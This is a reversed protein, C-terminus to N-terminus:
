QSYYGPDRMLLTKDGVKVEVPKYVADKKHELVLQGNDNVIAQVGANSLRNVFFGMLSDNSAWDGASSMMARLTPSKALSQLANSGVLANMGAGGALGAILGKGAGKLAKAPDGESIGQQAGYIAGIGGAAATSSTGPHGSVFSALKSTFSPNNISEVIDYLKNGKTLGAADIAKEFAEANITGTAPDIHRELLLQIGAKQEASAAPKALKTLQKVSQQGAAGLMGVAGGFIGGVMSGKQNFLDNDGLGVQNTLGGQIAGQAALNFIPAAGKAVSATAPLLNGTMGIEGAATTANGLLHSVGTGPASGQQYTQEQGEYFKQIDAPSAIYQGVSEPLVAKAGAALWKAPISAQQLVGTGFAHVNAGVGASLKDMPTTAEQYPDGIPKFAPDPKYNPDVSQLNIYKGNIIPM